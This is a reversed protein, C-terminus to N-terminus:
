LRLSFHLLSLVMTQRNRTKFFVSKKLVRKKTGVRLFFIELRCLNTEYKGKLIQVLNKPIVYYDLILQM